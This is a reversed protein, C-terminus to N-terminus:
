NGGSSVESFIYGKNQNTIGRMQKRINGASSGIARAADSMSLYVTGHQDKIKIGCAKQCLSKHHDRYEQTALLETIKQRLALVARRKGESSRMARAKRLRQTVLEKNEIQYQALKMRNFASQKIGMRSKSLNKRHEESFPALKRGTMIKSKHLRWEISPVWGKSGSGGSCINYGTGRKNSSLRKIWKIEALNLDAETTSIIELISLCFSVEGYKNWSAQFHKNPHQGRRLECRHQIWRRRLKQTTKGVLMKGNKVNEIKYIIM